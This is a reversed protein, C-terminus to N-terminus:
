MASERCRFLGTGTMRMVVDGAANLTEYQFRVGGMGPRSRSPRADLVEIRVSLVDGPVVPRLWRLQDIGPSGMSPNDEAAGGEGMFDVLMRMTMACTHWGSACFVGMAGAKAKEEDLHFVQPDYAAAFRKIEEATVEYAGFTETLGPTYDEFWRM